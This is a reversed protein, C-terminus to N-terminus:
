ATKFRYGLEADNFTNAEILLTILGDVALWEPSGLDFKRRYELVKDLTHM